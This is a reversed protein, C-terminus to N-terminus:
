DAMKNSKVNFMNSRLAKQTTRLQFLLPFHTTGSFIWLGGGGGGGGRWPLSKEYLGGEGRSKGFDAWLIYGM